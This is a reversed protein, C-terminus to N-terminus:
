WMSKPNYLFWKLLTYFYEKDLYRWGQALAYRLENAENLLWAPLVWVQVNVIKIETRM